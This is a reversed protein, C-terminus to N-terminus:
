TLVLAAVRTLLGSDLYFVITRLLLRLEIRLFFPFHSLPFPHM